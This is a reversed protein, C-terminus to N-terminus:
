STNICAEHNNIYKLRIIINIAIIYSSIIVISNNFFPFIYKFFLFFYYYFSPYYVTFIDSGDPLCM